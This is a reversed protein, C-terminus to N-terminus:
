TPKRSTWVLSFTATLKSLPNFILPSPKLKCKCPPAYLSPHRSNLKPSLVPIKNYLKLGKNSKM